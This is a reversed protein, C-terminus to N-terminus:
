RGTGRRPCSTTYRPASCEARRVRIKDFPLLKVHTLLGKDGQQQPCVDVHVAHGPGKVLGVADPGDGVAHVGGAGAVAAVDDVVPHALVVVLGLHHQLVDGLRGPLKGVFLDNHQAASVVVQGRNGHVQGVEGFVHHRGVDVQGQHLLEDVLLPEVLETILVADIVGGGVDVVLPLAVVKGQREGAGEHDLGGLAGGVPVVGEVGLLLGIHELGPFLHVLDDVVDVVVAVLVGEDDLVKDGPVVGIHPHDGVVGALVALHLEHAHAVHQQLFVGAM